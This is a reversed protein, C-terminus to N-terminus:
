FYQMSPLCICLFHLLPPSFHSTTSHTISIFLFSIAIQCTTALYDIVLLKFASVFHGCALAKELLIDFVNAEAELFNIQLPHFSVPMKLAYFSSVARCNVTVYVHNTCLVSHMCLSHPTIDDSIHATHRKKKKRGTSHTAICSGTHYYYLSRFSGM